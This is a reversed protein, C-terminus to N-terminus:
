FITMRIRGVESVENRSCIHTFWPSSLPAGGFNVTPIAINGDGGIRITLQVYDVYMLTKRLSHRYDHISLVAANTSKLFRSMYASNKMRLIDTKCGNGFYTNAQPTRGSSGRNPRRGQVGSPSKREGPYRRM